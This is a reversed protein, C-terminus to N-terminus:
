WNKMVVVKQVSQEGTATNRLSVHYIGSLWNNTNITTESESNMKLVNRGQNDMISIDFNGKPMTINIRETAPNPYIKINSAPTKQIKSKIVIDGDKGTAYVITKAVDIMQQIYPNEIESKEEYSIASLPALTKQAQPINGALYSSFGTWFVPMVSQYTGNITLAGKVKDDAVDGFDSDDYNKEKLIECINDNNFNAPFLDLVLQQKTTFIYDEKSNPIGPQWRNFTAAITNSPYLNQLTPIVSFDYAIDFLRGVDAGGFYQAFTNTNHGQSNIYEDINLWINQGVIGLANRLMSACDMTVRGVSPTGLKEDTFDGTMRIGIGNEYLKTDSLLNINSSEAIIANFADHVATGNQMTFNPVRNLAIEYGYEKEIQPDHKLFLLYSDGPYPNADYIKNFVNARNGYFHCSSFVVTPKDGSGYETLVLAPPTQTPLLNPLEISNSSFAVSTQFNSYNAIISKGRSALIGITRYENFDTNDITFEDPSSIADEHELSICIDLHNFVCANLRLVNPSELDNNILGIMGKGKSNGEFTVSTCDVSKQIPMVVRSNNKYQVRGSNWNVDQNKLFLAVNEQLNMMKNGDGTVYFTNTLTLTHGQHFDFYAGGRFQVPSGVSLLGLIKIPNDLGAAGNFVVPNTGNEINLTGGQEVLIEAYDRLNFNAGGQITLKGNPKVVIQTNNYLNTIANVNMKLEGGNEIIIKANSNLSLTAGQHIAVEGGSKIILQSKNYLNVEGSLAVIKNKNGVTLIANRSGAKPAGLTLKGGNVTITTLETCYDGLHAEYTTRDFNNVNDFGSFGEDNIKLEGTTNITVNPIHNKRYSFNYTKQGNSSPLTKSFNLDDKDVDKLFQNVWTRMTADVEVHRLNGAAPAYYDLFPTLQKKLIELDKLNKQLINPNKYWNWEDPNQNNRVDLTSLTPMFCFNPQFGAAPFSLIANSLTQGLNDNLWEQLGEIDRRIGRLDDRMCGPANDFAPLDQNLTFRLDLNITPKKTSLNFCTPIKGNFITRNPVNPVGFTGNLANLRATIVPVGINVAVDLMSSGANFPATGSPIGVAKESGDSIAINTAKEPYGLTAMEQMFPGRITNVRFGSALDNGPSVVSLKGTAVADALTETLLQKSAPTNLKVWNEPQLKTLWAMYSVAQLSLPIYAGKQPSDFSVYLKTCHNQGAKEMQSLAMKAVQGGMSAGVVINEHTGNDDAVKTANVRAILAKLVEANKQIFTAGEGFDLFIVDYQQEGLDNFLDPYERFQETQGLELFSDEAGMIFIDWGTVGCRVINSEYKGAVTINKDFFRTESNFDIGDVFIIPKSITTHKPAKKIYAFGLGESENLVPDGAKYAAAAYPPTTFKPTTIKWIEDPAVYPKSNKVFFEKEKSTSLQDLLIGNIHARYRLTRTSNM